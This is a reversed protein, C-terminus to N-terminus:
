DLYKAKKTLHEDLTKSFYTVGKSSLFYLYNSDVPDVVAAISDISPNGIPGPPLGRNTYTNYASPTRTEEYTFQKKSEKLIYQITACSELAMNIELRNLFVSAVLKRDDAKAVEREVISALNVIEYLSMKNAKIKADYPKIKTQFNNLMKVIIENADAKKSLQYTDPYLFGELNGGDPVDSLFSYKNRYNSVKAQALFEEKTVIGKGDLYAAIKNIDWGEPITIKNTQIKGQTLIDAVEPITLNSRIQYDGVQLKDSVRKLNLYFVFAFSSKILKEDELRQAIDGGGEGTQVSFTKPTSDTSNQANITRNLWFALILAFCFVLALLGVGIKLMRINKDEKQM